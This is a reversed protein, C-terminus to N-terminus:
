NLNLYVDVNDGSCRIEAYSYVGNRNAVEKAVFTLRGNTKVNYSHGMATCTAFDAGTKIESKVAQPKDGNSMFMPVRFFVEDASEVQACIKVGTTTVRYTESVTPFSGKYIVKFAVEGKDEKIIETTHEIESLDSVYVVEGKDNKFGTEISLNINEMGDPLTYSPEKACPMSLALETPVGAKHIRGLGTCDYHFDADTDLEISYGGCSAFIKNFRDSTELMYGGVEAPCPQEPISDDAFLCGIAMFSAMTVMYKSYYGYSETGIIDSEYMNKIHKKAKLWRDISMVALHAARKYAGALKLNGKNKHRVAEYECCSAILSENFLYQNSRGGYPLEFASSQTFLTALGGKEMIDDLAQKHKGTYGMGAMLQLQVRTTLDYLIPNHCPDHALNDPYMGLADFKPLQKELCAEIYNIDNTLGYKNRLWEGSLNYININHKDGTTYVYYDVPNVAKLKTDWEERKDASIHKELLMYAIMLEKVSFDLMSNGRFAEIAACGRSMIECAFDVDKKGREALLAYSCVIRSYAQIDEEAKMSLVLEEPYAELCMEILEFYKDKTFGTTKFNDCPMEDIYKLFDM